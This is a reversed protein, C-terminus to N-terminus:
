GSIRLVRISVEPLYLKTMITHVVEGDFLSRYSEFPDINKWGYPWDQSHFTGNDDPPTITTPYAM